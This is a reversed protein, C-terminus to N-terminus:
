SRSNVAASHQILVFCVVILSLVLLQFANHQRLVILEVLQRHLNFVLHLEDSEHPNLVYDIVHSDVEHFFDDVCTDLRPDQTAVVILIDHAGAELEFNEITVGLDELNGGEALLFESALDPLGNLVHLAVDVLFVGLM